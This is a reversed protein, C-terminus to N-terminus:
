GGFTFSDALEIQAGGIDVYSTTTGGPFVNPAGQGSLAGGIGFNRGTTIQWVKDATADATLAIDTTIQTESDVSAIGYIGATVGTGSIIQVCDRGAVVGSSVFTAGTQVLHNGATTTATSGTIQQVNAFQPDVALDHAGKQWAAADNVDTANNYYNNYDDLQATNAASDTQIGTTLGYLISNTLMNNPSTTDTDVNIGYGLQNEAGYLTCNAFYSSDATATTAINICGTVCNAIITNSVQM